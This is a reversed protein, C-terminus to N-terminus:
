DTKIYFSHSTVVGGRFFCGVLCQVMLNQVDAGAFTSDVDFCDATGCLVNSLAMNLWSVFVLTLFHVM